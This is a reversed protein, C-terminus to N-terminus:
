LAINLVQVTTYEKQGDVGFEVGIGSCRVGGFPAMPHPMGHQNVWATGCELRRALRAAEQPDDGWVSGGLGVELANARQLAEDMYASVKDLQMRNSVPGILNKPDLGKGMPIQACYEAFRSM